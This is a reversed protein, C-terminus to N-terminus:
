FLSGIGMNAPMPEPAAAPEMYAANSQGFGNRIDYSQTQQTAMPASIMDPVISTSEMHQDARSGVHKNQVANGRRRERGGNAPAPAGNWLEMVRDYLINVKIGIKTQISLVLIMFVLIVNTLSLSDYKFESYTPFYTIVRHILVVGIFMVILQVLIEALIEVSTKEDDADPIFRQVIKNLIVIPIVGMLAYQVINLLEAKGEETSSFVHNFFTNKGFRSSTSELTGDM